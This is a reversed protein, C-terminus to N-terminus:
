LSTWRISNRSTSRNERACPHGRSSSTSTARLSTSASPLQPAGRWGCLSCSFSVAFLRRALSLSPARGTGQDDNRSIATLEMRVGDTPKVLCAELLRKLM